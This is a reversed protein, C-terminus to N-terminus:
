SRKPNPPLYGERKSYDLMEQLARNYKTPDDSGKRAARRVDRIDIMLAKRMEGADILAKLKHRYKKSTTGNRGHSSTEAHDSPDMQIAPGKDYSINTVSDAPMHHSQLGDGIPGKMDGHAGGHYEKIRKTSKRRSNGRSRTDERGSSAAGLAMTEREEPAIPQEVLATGLKGMRAEIEAILERTEPSLHRVKARLWKMFDVLWRHSAETLKGGRGQVIMRAIEAGKQFPSLGDWEQGYAERGRAEWETDKGLARIRGLNEPSEAAYRLTAVHFVEEAIARRIKKRRQNPTLRATDAALKAPDITIRGDASTYIGSRNPTPGFQPEV